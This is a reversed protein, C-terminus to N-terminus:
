DTLGEITKKKKLIAKSIRSQKCKLKFKVTLKNIEVYSGYNNNNLQQIMDSEKRGWSTCCALSGLGESVGPTKEFEDRTDIIGDLQKTREQMLYGSYQIM